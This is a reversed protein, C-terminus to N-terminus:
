NRRKKRTGKKGGGNAPLSQNDKKKLTQAFYMKYLPMACISMDGFPEYFIGDRDKGTGNIYTKVIVQFLNPNTTIDTNDYVKSCFFYDDTPSGEVIKLENSM